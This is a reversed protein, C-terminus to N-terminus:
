ETTTPAPDSPSLEGLGDDDPGDVIHTLYQKVFNFDAEIESYVDRQKKSMGKWGNETIGTAVDMGFYKGNLGYDAILVTAANRAVRRGKPPFLIERGNQGVRMPKGNNSRILVNGDNDADDLFAQLLQYRAPEGRQLIDDLSMTRVLAAIKEPEM